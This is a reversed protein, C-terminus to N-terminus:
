KQSNSQCFKTYKRWRSCFNHNIATKANRNLTDALHLRLQLQLNFVNNETKRFRTEETNCDGKSMLLRDFCKYHAFLFLIFLACPSHPSRPPEKTVLSQELLHFNNALFQMKFTNFRAVQLLTHGARWARLREM